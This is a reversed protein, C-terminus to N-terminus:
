MPKMLSTNGKVGFHGPTASHVIVTKLDFGELGSPTQPVGPDPAGIQSRDDDVPHREGREFDAERPGIGIGSDRVGFDLNIAELEPSVRRCGPRRLRFSRRSSSIQLPGTDMCTDSVLGVAEGTVATSDSQGCHLPGSAIRRTMAPLAPDSYQVSRHM